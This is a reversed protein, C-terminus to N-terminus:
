GRGQPGEDSDQEASGQQNLLQWIRLTFAGFGIALGIFLGIPSSDFYRDAWHGFGMSIVVSLGAQLGGEYAGGGKKTSPKGAHKSRDEPPGESV